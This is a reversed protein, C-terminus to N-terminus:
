TTRTRGTRQAATESAPADPTDLRVAPEASESRAAVATGAARELARRAVEEMQRRRTRAWRPLQVMPVSMSALGAALFFTMGSILGAQKIEPMIGTMWLLFFIAGMIFAFVAMSFGARANGKTTRMRLRWGADSPEVAVRLNGNSWTRLAGEERIRGQAEFTDRLDAVMRGWAEDSMPGPLDATYGVSLPLGLLSERVVSGEPRDLHAAARAIFEPTIGSEAGIAQLEALTLGEPSGSKSRATEQARAAEEFIAAIEKESYRRDEHM